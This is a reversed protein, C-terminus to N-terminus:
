MRDSSSLIKTPVGNPLTDRINLLENQTFAFLINDFEVFNVTLCSTRQIVIGM